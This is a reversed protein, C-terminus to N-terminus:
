LNNNLNTLNLIPRGTLYRLLQAECFREITDAKEKHHSACHPTIVLLPTKWIPDEPGKPKPHIVDLAAGGLHGEHLV